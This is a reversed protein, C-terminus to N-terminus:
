ILQVQSQIKLLQTETYKSSNQIIDDQLKSIELSKTDRLKEARNIEELLEPLVKNDLIDEYYQIKELIAKREKKLEKSSRNM